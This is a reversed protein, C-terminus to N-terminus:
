PVAVNVCLIEANGTTRMQFGWAGYGRTVALTFNNERYIGNSPSQYRSKLISHVILNGPWLQGNHTHGSIQMLAGDKESERYDQPQHDLVLLPLDTNQGKLIQSIPMRSHNKGGVAYDDRGLLLLKGGINKTQNCLLEVGSGQYFARMQETTNYKHEHNGMIAYTGYSSKISSVAEAFTEKDAWEVQDDLVDGAFLVIDPNLENIKKVMKKLDLTGGVTSYHLDSLAVVRMREKGEHGVDFSTVTPNQLAWFGWCCIAISFSAGVVLKYLQFRPTLFRRKEHLVVGLIEQLLRLVLLSILFYILFGMVWFGAASLGRLSRVPFLFQYISGMPIIELIFCILGFFFKKIGSFNQSIIRWIWRDFLLMFFLYAVTGLAFLLVDTLFPFRGGSQKKIFPCM